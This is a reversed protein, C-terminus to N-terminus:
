ETKNSLGVPVPVPAIVETVMVKTPAMPQTEKSCLVKLIGSNIDMTADDDDSNDDNGKGGEDDNSDENNGDKNSTDKDQLTEQTVVNTVKGAAVESEETGALKFQRVMFSDKFASGGKIAPKGASKVPVPKSVPVTATPKLASSPVM